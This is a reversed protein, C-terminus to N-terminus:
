TYTVDTTNDYRIWLRGRISEWVPRVGGNSQISHGFTSVLAGDLEDATISPNNLPTKLQVLNVRIEFESTDPSAAAGFDYQADLLLRQARNYTLEPLSSNFIRFHPPVNVAVTDSGDSFAYHTWRDVETGIVQPESLSVCATLGIALFLHLGPAHKM